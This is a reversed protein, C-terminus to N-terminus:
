MNKNRIFRELSDFYSASDSRNTCYNFAWDDHHSKCVIDVFATYNKDKMTLKSCSYIACTEINLKDLLDKELM